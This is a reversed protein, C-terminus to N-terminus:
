MAPKSPPSAAASKGPTIKEDNAFLSHNLNADIETSATTMRPHHRIPTIKGPRLPHHLKAGIRLRKLSGLCRPNQKTLRPYLTFFPENLRHRLFLNHPM